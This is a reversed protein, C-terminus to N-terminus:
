SRTNGRTHEDFSSKKSDKYRKVRAEIFFILALFEVIIWIDEALPKFSLHFLLELNM